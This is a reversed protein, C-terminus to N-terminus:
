TLMEEAPQGAFKVPVKGGEGANVQLTETCFAGHIVWTQGTDAEYTVTANTINRIEELSFGQTLSIECEMMAPEITEAFGHVSSAGVVPERKVGGLTIKAGPLTRLLGGNVKIYAISHTMSM